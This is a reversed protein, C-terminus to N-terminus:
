NDNKEVKCTFFVLCIYQGLECLFSTHLFYSISGAEWALLHKKKVTNNKKANLYM